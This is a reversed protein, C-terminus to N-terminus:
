LLDFAILVPPTALGTTPQRLWDFRSRLQEDFIALEGDLVLAATKLRAIAAVVEPYRRTHDVGTRSVLRVSAGDKYALMRYADVYHLAAYFLVTVAWDGNVSPDIKAFFQENHQAQDLHDQTGPM